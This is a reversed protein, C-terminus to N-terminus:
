SCKKFVTSLPVKKPYFINGIISLLRGSAFYNILMSTINPFKVVEGRLKTM